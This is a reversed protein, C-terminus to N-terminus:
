RHGMRCNLVDASSGGFLRGEGSRRRETPGPQATTALGSISETAQEVAVCHLRTVSFPFSIV